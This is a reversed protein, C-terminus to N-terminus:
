KEAETLKAKCILQENSFKEGKGKEEDKEQNFLIYTIM